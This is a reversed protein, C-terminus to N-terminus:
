LSADLISFLWVVFGVRNGNINGNVNTYIDSLNPLFYTYGVEDTWYSCLVHLYRHPINFLM